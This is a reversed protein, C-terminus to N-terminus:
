KKFTIGNGRGDLLLDQSRSLLLELFYTADKRQAKSLLPILLVSKQIEKTAKSFVNTECDVPFSAFARIEAKSYASDPKEKAMLALLRKLRNQLTNLYTYERDNMNLQQHPKEATRPQKRDCRWNLTL